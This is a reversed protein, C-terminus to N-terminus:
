WGTLEPECLLAQPRLVQRDTLLITLVMNPMWFSVKGTDQGLLMSPFLMFHAPIFVPMNQDSLFSEASPLPSCCIDQLWNGFIYLFLRIATWCHAKIPLSCNYFIIIHSSENPYLSLLWLIFPDNEHTRPTGCHYVYKLIFLHESRVILIMNHDIRDCSTIQSVM